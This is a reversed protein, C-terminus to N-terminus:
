PKEEQRTRQRELRLLRKITDVTASKGIERLGEVIAEPDEVGRGLALRVHYSLSAGAIVQAPATVLDFPSITITGPGPVFRLGFPEPTRPLNNAKICTFAIATADPVTRDRKAEWILRPGNFAFAGGYPRAPGHTRADAGTIHSLVLVAAPAFLRCAAYFGTIPEHFAAGDGGACAFMMSDIIVLGIGRRACEAALVRVAEQLPRAMRQYLIPPVAIGLGASLLGVREDVTDLTTEWDFYAVGVAQAPALGFPLAAGSQMAVAIAKATLSKGTDGDGIILTPEGAYLVRPLLERTPRGAAGTLTVFPEGARVARATARCVREVLTGWPLARHQQALRKALAVKASTSALALRGWHLEVGGLSVALEATIGDRHEKVATVDIQVDCGPWAFVFDDAVRACTPEGIAATGPLDAVDTEAHGSAIFDDAGAKPTKM